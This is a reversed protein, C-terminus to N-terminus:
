LSLHSSGLHDNKYHGLQAPFMWYVKRPLPPKSKVKTMHTMGNRDSGQHLQILLLLLAWPTSLCHNLSSFSATLTHPYLFTDVKLILDHSWWIFHKMALVNRGQEMGTRSCSQTETSHYLVETGYMALQSLLQSNKNQNQVSHSGHNPEWKSCGWLPKSVASPIIRRVWYMTFVSVSGKSLHFRGHVDVRSCAWKSRYGFGDEDAAKCTSLNGIWPLLRLIERKIPYSDHRHRCFTISFWISRIVLFALYIKSTLQGTGGVESEMTVPEKCEPM